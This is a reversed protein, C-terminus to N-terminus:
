NLNISSKGKINTTAPSEIDVSNAGKVEVQNDAQVSVKAAKGEILTDSNLKVADTGTITHNKTTEEIKTEFQSDLEKGNFLVKGDNKLEISSSGCILKITDSSDITIAGSGDMDVSSKGPDQLRVSGTSDDLKLSSGSRTTLTKSRNGKGGGTAINEPFLSLTVFPLSPNGNMYGVVVQDGVEPVFVSGRPGKESTGADPSLVRVWNTKKDLAKQWLMQVKVRGKSDENDVVTALESVPTINPCSQMIPINEIDSVYAVFENHYEGAGNIFHIVKQVFFSDIDTKLTGMNKPLKLRVIKGISINCVFSKGKALLMKGVLRNKEVKVLQEMDGKSSIPTDMPMTGIFKYLSSSSNLATKAYGVVDVDDDQSVHTVDSSEHVLYAYVKFASPISVVDIEMDSLSSNYTLDITEQKNPKGFLIDRGDYYFWEGYLESLRNLFSFCSERYQCLYDINSSFVPNVKVVAGNGSYEVVETVIDGLSKNVFSNMTPLSELLVTPSKGSICIQNSVGAHGVYSVNQVIGVFLNEEGTEKHLLNIVVETNLLAFLKEPAEMWRNEFTRYDFFLEFKHHSNFEQELKLSLFSVKKGDIVINAVVSNLNESM